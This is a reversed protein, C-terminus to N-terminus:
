KAMQLLPFVNLPILILLRISPEKFSKRNEASIEAQASSFEYFTSVFRLAYVFAITM